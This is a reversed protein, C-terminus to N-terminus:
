VTMDHDEQLYAGYDFISALILIIVGMFVAQLNVSMNITADFLDLQHIFQWFFVNGVLPLAVSAILYGYGIYKLRLVNNQSFPGVEITENLINRIYIMVFQLFGLNVLGMFGLTVLLWKVNIVGTFLSEDIEYMVNMIQVNIHELNNFDFDLLGKPLVLAVVFGISVIGILVYLANVAWRVFHAAGKLVKDYSSKNFTKNM